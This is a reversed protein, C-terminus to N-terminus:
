PPPHNIKLSLDEPGLWPPGFISNSCKLMLSTSLVVYHMGMITIINMALHIQVFIEQNLLSLQNKPQTVKVERTRTEEKVTSFKWKEFFTTATAIYHLTFATPPFTNENEFVMVNVYSM